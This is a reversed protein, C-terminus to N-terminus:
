RTTTQGTRVFRTVKDNSLLGGETRAVEKGDVYRVYTPFGGVGYGTVADGLLDCDMMGLTGQQTPAAEFFPKSRQCHGCWDAMFMVVVVGPSAILVDLEAKSHPRVVSSRRQPRPKRLTPLFLHLLILASLISVLFATDMTQSLPYLFFLLHGPSVPPFFFYSPYQYFM